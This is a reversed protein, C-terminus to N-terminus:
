REGRAWAESGEEARQTCEPTNQRCPGPPRACGDHWCPEGSNTGPKHAGELTSPTRLSKTWGSTLVRLREWTVDDLGLAAMADEAGYVVHIPGGKWASHWTEQGESKKGRVTRTYGDKETRTSITKVELLLTRGEYGVLLDPGDKVDLAQVSAGAARLAIVTPHHATDKHRAYRSMEAVLRHAVARLSVESLPFRVRELRTGPTTDM